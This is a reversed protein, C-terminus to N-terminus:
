KKASKTTKNTSKTTNKQREDTKKNASKEQKKQAKTQNNPPKQKDQLTNLATRQDHAKRKKGKQLKTIDTEKDAKNEDKETNPNEPLRATGEPTIPADNAEPKAQAAESTGEPADTETPQAAPTSARARCANGDARTKRTAENGAEDKAPDNAKREAAQTRETAAEPPNHTENGIKAHGTETTGDAEGKRPEPEPEHAETANAAKKPADTTTKTGDTANTHGNHRPPTQRQTPEKGHPPRNKRQHGDDM